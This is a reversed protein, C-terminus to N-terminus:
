LLAQKGGPRDLNKVYDYYRLVAVRGEPSLGSLNLSLSRSDLFQKIEAFDNMEQLTFELTKSTTRDMLYDTMVHFFDAIRVLMDNDPERKGAEYNALCSRSIGLERALSEQSQGRELRLTRLKVAFATKDPKIM